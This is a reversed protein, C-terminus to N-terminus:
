RRASKFIWVLVMSTDVAFSDSHFRRWQHVHRQHKPPAESRMFCACGTRALEERHTCPHLHIYRRHDDLQSSSVVAEAVKGMRRRRTAIGLSPGM